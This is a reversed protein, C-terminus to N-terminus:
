TRKKHCVNKTGKANQNECGNDKLCSYTKERLGVFEKM